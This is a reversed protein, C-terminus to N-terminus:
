LGIRKVVGRKSCITVIENPANPLAAHFHFLYVARGNSVSVPASLTRLNSTLRRRDELAATRSFSVQPLGQRLAERRCAPHLAGPALAAKRNAPCIESPSLFVLLQRRLLHSLHSPIQPLPLLRALRRSPLRIHIPDMPPLFGSFFLSCHFHLPLSKLLIEEPDAQFASSPPISCTAPAQPSRLRDISIPM